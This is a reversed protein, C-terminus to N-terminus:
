RAKLAEAIAACVGEFSETVEANTFRMVQIGERRLADTRTRDYRMAQDTYHSDGDVEIVLRKSSCYFDAVYHGIPKQRTFKCPLDSLFQYWLKKEAASADRRLSQARRTLDGRYPIWGRPPM